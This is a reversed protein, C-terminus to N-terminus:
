KLSLPVDGPGLDSLFPAAAEKCVERSAKGFLREYQSVLLDIVTKGDGGEIAVSGKPENPINIGKVKRAEMWALPGIILEQQLIINLAIKDITTMM